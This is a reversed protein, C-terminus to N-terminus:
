PGSAELELEASADKGLQRGKFALRGGMGAIPNVVLGLRMDRTLARAGRAPAGVFSETEM